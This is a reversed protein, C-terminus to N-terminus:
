NSKSPTDRGWLLRQCIKTLDGSAAEFEFRPGKPCFKNEIVNLRVTHDRLMGIALALRQKDAEPMVQRLLSFIQEAGEGM